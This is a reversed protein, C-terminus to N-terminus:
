PDKLPCLTSRAFSAMELLSLCDLTDFTELHYLVQAFHSIGVTGIGNETMIWEHKETFKRM